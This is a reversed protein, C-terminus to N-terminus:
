GSWWVSYGNPALIVPIHYRADPDPMELRIVVQRVPKLGAPPLRMEDFYAGTAFVLEFVADPGAIATDVTEAIRGGEDTVTSFVELRKESPLVRYLAVAVGAAHTGDVANLTHSTLTAM